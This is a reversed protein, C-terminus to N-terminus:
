KRPYSELRRMESSLVVDMLSVYLRRWSGVSSSLEESFWIKVTEERRGGEEVGGEDIGGDVGGVVEGCNSGVSLEM